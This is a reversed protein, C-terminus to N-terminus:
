IIIRLNGSVRRNDTDSKSVTWRLRSSMSLRRRSRQGRRSTTWGTWISWIQVVTSLCLFHIKCFGCFYVKFECLNKIISCVIFIIYFLYLMLCLNIIPYTLYLILYLFDINLCLFDINQFVYIFLVKPPVLRHALKQSIKLGAVVRQFYWSKCIRCMFLLFTFCVGDWALGSNDM